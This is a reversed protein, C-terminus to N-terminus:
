GAPSHVDLSMPFLFVSIFIIFYFLFNTHTQTYFEHIPLDIIIM